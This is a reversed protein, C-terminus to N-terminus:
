TRFRSMLNQLFFRLGSGILFICAVPHLLVALSSEQFIIKTFFRYIVLLGFSAISWFFHTFLFILPFSWLVVALLYLWLSSRNKEEWLDQWRQNLELLLDSLNEAYQRQLFKEGFGLYLRRNKHKWHRALGEKFHWPGLLTFDIQRFDEQGMAMWGQAMAMLSPAFKSRWRGPGALSLYALTPNLLAIAESLAKKKATQPVFFTCRKKDAIVQAVSQFAASLPAIEPDAIIVVPATIHPSVQELMWTEPVVDKPRMPFSHIVLAATNKQAEQWQTIGPHHGDILLHIKVGSPGMESSNLAECWSHANFHSKQTIPLLIEVPLAPGHHASLQKGMLANRILTYIMLCTLGLALLGLM